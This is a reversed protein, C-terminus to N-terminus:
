GKARKATVSPKFQAVLPFFVAIEILFIFRKTVDHSLM